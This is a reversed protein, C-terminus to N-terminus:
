SDLTYQKLAQQLAKIWIFSKQIKQQISIRLLCSNSSSYFILETSKFLALNKLQDTHRALAYSLQLLM